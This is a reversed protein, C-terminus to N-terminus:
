GAALGSHQGVGPGAYPPTPAHRTKWIYRSGPSASSRRSFNLVMSRWPGAQRLGALSAYCRNTPSGWWGVHKTFCSNNLRPHLFLIAQCGRAAVASPLLTGCASDDAPAHQRQFFSPKVIVPASRGLGALRFRGGTMSYAARGGAGSFHCCRWRWHIGSRRAAPALATRRIFVRWTLTDPSAARHPFDWPAAQRCCLLIASVRTSCSCGRSLVATPPLAILRCLEAGPPM